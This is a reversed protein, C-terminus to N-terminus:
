NLKEKLEKKDDESIEEKLWNSGLIQDLSPRKEPDYAIM